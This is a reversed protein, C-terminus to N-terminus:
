NGPVPTGPIGPAGSITGIVVEGEADLIFLNDSAPGNVVAQTLDAVNGLERITPPTYKTMPEMKVTEHRFTVASLTGNQGPHNPM